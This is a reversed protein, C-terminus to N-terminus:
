LLEARMSCYDRGTFYNLRFRYILSYLLYNYSCLFMFGSSSFGYIVFIYIYIYLSYYNHNLSLLSNFM